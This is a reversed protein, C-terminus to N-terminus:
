VSVRDFHDMELWQTYSHWKGNIERDEGQDKFVVDDKFFNMATELGVTVDQATRGHMVIQDSINRALNPDQVTKVSGDFGAQQLRQLFAKWKEASFSNVSKLGIYGKPVQNEYMGLGKNVTYYLWTNNDITDPHVTVGPMVQMEPNAQHEASMRYYNRTQKNDILKDDAIMQELEADSQATRLRPHMRIIEYRLFCGYKEAFDIYQTRTLKSLDIGQQKAKKALFFINVYPSSAASQQELIYEVLEVFNM